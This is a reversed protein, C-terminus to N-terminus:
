SPRPFGDNLELSGFATITVSFNDASTRGKKTYTRALALRTPGGIVQLEEPDGWSGGDPLQFWKEAVRSLDAEPIIRETREPILEFKHSYPLGINDSAAESVYGTSLRIRMGQVIGYYTRLLSDKMEFRSELGYTYGNPLGDIDSLAERTYADAREQTTFQTLNPHIAIDLAASLTSDGGNRADLIAPQFDKRALQYIVLAHNQYKAREAPTLLTVRTPTAEPAPSSVGSPPSPAETKPRNELLAGKIIASAGLGMAMIGSAISGGILVRRLKNPQGYGDMLSDGRRFALGEPIFFEVTHKLSPDEVFAPINKSGLEPNYIAM